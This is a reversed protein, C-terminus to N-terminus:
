KLDNLRQNAIFVIKQIVQVATLDSTDILIADEAMKLPSIKRSSDTHDRKELDRLIQNLSFSNTMEPNKSMLEKYRREARIEPSATLFIKLEADPFVVTGMDRGEFVADKNKAFHRQIQVLHKRVSPYVAVVSAVKSIEQTRIDKTVENGNVFYQKDFQGVNQVQYHFLPLQAAVETEQNPDVNQHVIWWALSRYMAGTDFFEFQLSKAVGKAVTSKGTGSPGDIAIIM